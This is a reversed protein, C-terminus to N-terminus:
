YNFISTVGSSTNLTLQVKIALIKIEMLTFEYGKEIGLYQVTIGKLVWSNGHCHAILLLEGGKLDKSAQIWGQM